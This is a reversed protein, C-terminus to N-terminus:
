MYNIYDDWDSLYDSYEQNKEWEALFEETLNDQSEDCFCKWYCLSYKSDDINRCYKKWYIAVSDLEEDV